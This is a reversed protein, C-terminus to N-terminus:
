VTPHAPAHAHEVRDILAQTHRRLASEPDIKAAQCAAALAFLRRGAEAEDLEGALGDILEPEHGAAAELGQKRVQKWINRAFLLAPLRAPQEKLVRPATPAKGAKEQQKIKEWNVLVADATKAEVDGFVHPHRRILKENIEAAVSEFDFHGAEAALQAHFVVQLLVDGLEERMHAADSRDIAELLEATEEILHECLTQHNQEQDWPCGGPGRLRAMTHCLDEIASM